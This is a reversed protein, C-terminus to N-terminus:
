APSLHRRFFRAIRDRADIASPEHYDSNSLKGMVVAWRPVERDDHDNLFSHGAGEYVHVDHDIGHSGLVDELVAAANSLGKDRAGYSGVIPCAHELLTLADKPVAGYNVSAADYAAMGALLVAVGGGFCFGIVGATGTCDPRDVLWSRTAELDDFVDGERRLVERIATFLCRMRGGRHFLDPAVALFGESALWDAQNRLDTSMGLADHIVVVGPWPGPGDPIALYAPVEGIRASANPDAM